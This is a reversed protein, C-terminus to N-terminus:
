WLYMSTKKNLIQLEFYKACPAQALGYCVLLPLLHEERPHCFRAGPAESWHSLLDARQQESYETSSCTSRLWDEFAHNLNRSQPTDASFFAKMNHFSFGSGIVLVNDDCVTQLARGIAIHEAANLTSVLSLQVCPIDAAPYMIKLPVFLGHDFGRQADLQSDIGAAGFLDHLKQALAPKGPCPYRIEYSEPPFGYYDYILEPNAGATITPVREEWHASVVVIAEPKPILAAIQQLCDVMDRHNPDGLLPLPGGGHSIFLAKHANTM